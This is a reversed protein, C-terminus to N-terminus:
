ITETTAMSCNQQPSRTNGKSLGSGVGNNREEDVGVVTVGRGTGGTYLGRNATDQESRDASPGEGAHDDFYEGADEVRLWGVKHDSPGVETM